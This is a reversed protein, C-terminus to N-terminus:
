EKGEIIRVSELENLFYLNRRIDHDRTSLREFLEKIVPLEEGSHETLSPLFEAVLPEFFRKDAAHLEDSLFLEYVLANIIAEFYNTALKHQAADDSTLYLIYDVLKEVIEKQWDEASPISFAELGDPQVEFWGNQKEVFIKKAYFHFLSSNLLALLYHTDSLTPLFYSTNGLYSDGSDLMFTPRISIKTSVIKSKEFEQWYAINDQIEFWKYNGPKRGGQKGPMLQGKFQLLYEHIAPYQKIDIGRRTFILWLDQPDTCWRKVDRGRLYPKLLEVSSKHERILRDRTAEDVVFAENFGTTIGRYVRTGAYESLSTGQSKLKELLRLVEPRELRWGEDNLEHQPLKFSLQNFGEEFNEVKENQPFTWVRTDNTAQTAEKRLVIISAYAAAEFVPADGFDIIQKITAQTALFGRLKEGYGARFYKNSTIFTLTGKERLINFAKEYFYVLIDATGTYTQYNREFAAKFEKIKEQRIYPPNAIVIDFGNAAPDTVGERRFVEGFQLEWLFFPKARLTINEAIRVKTLDKDGDGSDGKVQWLRKLEVRKATFEELAQEWGRLTRRLRAVQPTETEKKLTRRVNSVEAKLKDEAATIEAKLSAEREDLYLNIYKLLLREAQLRLKNKEAKDKEDFIRRHIQDLEDLLAGTM